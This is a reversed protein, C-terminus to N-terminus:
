SDRVRLNIVFLHGQMPGAERIGRDEDWLFGGHRGNISVPINFWIVLQVNESEFNGRMNNRSVSLKLGDKVTGSAETNLLFASTYMPEAMRSTGSDIIRFLQDGEGIPRSIGTIMRIDFDLSDGPGIYHIDGNNTVANGDLTISFSTYVTLSLIFLYGAHTNTSPKRIGAADNWEYGETEGNIITHYDFWIAFYINGDDIFGDRSKSVTINVGEPDGINGETSTTFLVANHCTGLSNDLPCIAVVSPNRYFSPNGPEILKVNLTISEGHRVYRTEDFNKVPVGNETILVAPMVSDPPPPPPPPPTPPEPKPPPSPPPLAAVVIAAASAAMGVGAAVAQATTTIPIAIGIGSITVAAPPAMIVVAVFAVVAVAVLVGVVIRKLWRPLFRAGIESEDDIQLRLSEWLALTTVIRQLRVNQSESLEGSFEHASFVNKNLVLDEFTEVDGDLSFTVSYTETERDYASFDGSIEQGEASIAVTTPFAEDRGYAMTIMSDDNTNIVQVVVGNDLHNGPVWAVVLVGEVDENDEIFMAIRGTDVTTPRNGSDLYFFRLGEPSDPLPPNIPGPGHTLGNSCSTITFIVLLIPAVIRYILPTRM